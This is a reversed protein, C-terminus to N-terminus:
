DLRELMPQCWVSVSLVSTFMVGWVCSKGLGGHVSVLELRLATFKTHEEFNTAVISKKKKKQCMVFIPGLTTIM